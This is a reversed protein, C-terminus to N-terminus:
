ATQYRIPIMRLTSGTAPFAQGSSNILFAKFKSPPLIIARSGLGGVTIRQAPTVAQMPFAGVWTSSPAYPSAGTTNDSYNTGDAAPILYLSCLTSATPASVFDVLLEFLGWLYLNTANDYEAGLAGSGNALANLETTMLDVISAVEYKTTAM